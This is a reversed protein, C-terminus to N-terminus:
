QLWLVWELVAGVEGGSHDSVDLQWLGRGTEGRLAELAAAGDAPETVLDYVTAIDDDAGGSRDHLTVMTGEPSTLSVILDSIHSHGIFIGIHIDAITAPGVGVSTVTLAVGGADDDPIDM